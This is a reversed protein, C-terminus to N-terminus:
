NEGNMRHMTDVILKAADYPAMHSTNVHLVEYGHKSLTEFASDFAKCDIDYDINSIDEDNIKCRLQWDEKEVICHVYLANKWPLEYECNRHFKNAYVVLSPWARVIVNLRKDLRWIYKAITDKGSKDIGDFIVTYFKMAKLEEM